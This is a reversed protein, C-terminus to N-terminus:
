RFYKGNIAGTVLHQVNTDRLPDYVQFLNRWQTQAHRKAEKWARSNWGPLQDRSVYHTAVFVDKSAFLGMTRIGPNPRVTRIEWVSERTPSLLFLYKPDITPSTVFVGLDAELQAYREIEASDTRPENIAAYVYTSLYISRIRPASTALPVLPYLRGEQVRWRINQLISMLTLVLLISAHRLAYNGYDRTVSGPERGAPNVAGTSRGHARTRWNAARWGFSAVYNKSYYLYIRHADTKCNSTPVEPVNPTTLCQGPM